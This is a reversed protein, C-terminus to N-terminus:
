SADGRHCAALHSRAPTEGTFKTLEAAPIFRRGRPGFPQVSRIIGARLWRALTSKAIGTAAQFDSPSLPKDASM